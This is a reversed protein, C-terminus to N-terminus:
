KRKKLRLVTDSGSPSMPFRIYEGRRFLGSFKDYHRSGPRGSQGLPLCLWNDDAAALSAIFRMSPIATVENPDALYSFGSVNVTSWDGGEPWPGRNLLWAAVRNKAGSHRYYLKHRHGWRWRAPKKGMTSSLEEWIGVLASEVLEGLSQIPNPTDAFLTIGGPDSVFSEVFSPYLPMLSLYLDLHKGLRVRLLREAMHQPLLNFVLCETSNKHCNGDWEKLIRALHVARTDTFDHALLTPLLRGPRVSTRDTQLAAFTKFDYVEMSELCSIIRDIRWTQAWSRSPPNPEDASITRNNATALLGQKPNESYLMDKFDKFGSWQHSIGGNAPLRGSYGTRLPVSGSAQLSINGSSDGAVINQGITTLQSASTRLEQINRVYPLSLIGNATTDNLVSEPLTGYWKLAVAANCDPSLNTLLPGHPTSYITRTSHKGNPLGYTEERSKLPHKVGNITCTKQLVDVPVVFLDVIDTMVNTFGWAVSPTRGIIIGPFGAMGVGLIEMSPCSLGCAFWIQPLQIGLHPDNAVLPKAGPGNSVAWNNSAGVLVKFEKYFSFAAPLFEGINLSRLQEFYDDEPLEENHFASMGPILRDWQKRNLKTRTVIALIEELYNTQLYWSNIALNAMADGLSWKEPRIKLIRFELPLKGACSDIYCNVGNLYAQVKIRNEASMGTEARTCFEPFKAIRAFHDLELTEEGAIESLRGSAFRRTTEM